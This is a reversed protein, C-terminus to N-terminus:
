DRYDRLKRIRERLFQHNNVLLPIMVLGVGFSKLTRGVFINRRIQGYGEKSIIYRSTLDKKGESHIAHGLFWIPIGYATSVGTFFGGKDFHKNESECAQLNAIVALCVCLFSITSFMKM